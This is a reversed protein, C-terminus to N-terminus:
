ERRTRSMRLCRDTAIRSPYAHCQQRTLPFPLRVMLQKWTQVASSLFVSVRSPSHKRVRLAAVDMVRRWGSRKGGSRRSITSLHQDSHAHQCQVAASRWVSGGVRLLSMDFRRFGDAIAKRATRTRDGDFGGRLNKRVQVSKLPFTDGKAVSQIGRVLPRDLCHAIIQQQYSRFPPSTRIRGFPATSCRPPSTGVFAAARTAVSGSSSAWLHSQPM